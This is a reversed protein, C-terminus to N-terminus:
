NVKAAFSNVKLGTGGQWIEFGAQISTLYWGSQAYGRQISDNIFHKVDLNVSRLGHARYAVYNWQSM